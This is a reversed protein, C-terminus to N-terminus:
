LVGATCAQNTAWGDRQEDDVIEPHALEGVGGGLVEELDDHAAVFAGGCENGGVARDFVPALEQPVGGGDGGQEIAQEVVAV